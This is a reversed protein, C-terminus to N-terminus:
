VPHRRHIHIHRGERPSHIDILSEVLRFTACRFVCLTRVREQVRTCVFSTVGLQPQVLQVCDLVKRPARSRRSSSVQVLARHVEEKQTHPNTTFSFVMSASSDGRPGNGVEGMKKTTNTKNPGNMPPLGAEYRKPPDISTYTPCTAVATWRLV